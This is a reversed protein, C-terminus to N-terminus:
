FLQMAESGGEDQETHTSDTCSFKIWVRSIVSLSFFTLLTICWQWTGFSYICLDPDVDPLRLFLLYLVLQLQHTIAKLCCDILMRLIFTATMWLDLFSRDGKAPEAREGRELPGVVVGSWPLADGPVQGHTHSGASLEVAGHAVTSRLLLCIEPLM